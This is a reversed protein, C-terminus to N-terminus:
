IKTFTRQWRGGKEVLSEKWWQPVLRASEAEKLLRNIQSDFIHTAGFDEPGRCVRGGMQIIGKLTEWVYASGDRQAWEKIVPDALSPWPIKGIVQWRAKDGKLDLGESLGCAMFIGNPSEQWERLRQMKDKPTHFILPLPSTASVHQKLKASLGYTLHILGRSKGHHKWVKEIFELLKGINQDQRLYSMSTISDLYIPRKQKPIPSDSGIIMWRRDELGMREIDKENITASLFILKTKKGPWMFPAEGRIDFPSMELVEANEGHYTSLKRTITFRPVERNLEARLLPVEFQPNDELWLKFDKRSWCESPWPLQHRWFKKTHLEQLFPVLNHAEDVVLVDKSMRHALHVHMNCLLPIPRKRSMQARKLDKWYQNCGECKDQERHAKWMKKFFKHSRDANRHTKCEYSSKGKLVALSPFDDSYQDVLVKDKTLISSTKRQKSAWRTAAVAIRSKGAGVPAQIIFVDHSHWNKELQLLADEQVQRPTGPFCDLISMEVDGLVDSTGSAVM